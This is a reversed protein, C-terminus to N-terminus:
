DAPLRAGRACLVRRVVNLVIFPLGGGLRIDSRFYWAWVVVLLNLGLLIFSARRIWALSECNCGLYGHPSVFTAVIGVLLAAVFLGFAQTESLWDAVLEVPVNFGIAGLWLWLATGLLIPNLRQQKWIVVGTVPVTLAAAILFGSGARGLDVGGQVIFPM